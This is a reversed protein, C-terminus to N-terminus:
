EKWQCLRYLVKNNTKVIEELNPARHDIAQDRNPNIAKRTSYRSTLTRRIMLVASSMRPATNVFALVSERLDKVTPVTHYAGQRRRHRSRGYGCPAVSQEGIKLLNLRLRPILPYLVPVM